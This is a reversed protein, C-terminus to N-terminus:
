PRETLYAVLALFALAMIFACGFGVVFGDAFGLQVLV